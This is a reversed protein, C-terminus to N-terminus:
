RLPECIVEDGHESLALLRCKRSPELFRTGTSEAFHAPKGISQFAIQFCHLRRHARPVTVPNHLAMDVPELHDLALHIPPCAQRQQPGPDKVSASIRSRDCLTRFLWILLPISVSHKGQKPLATDDVILAADKGGVLADATKRLVQEGQPM